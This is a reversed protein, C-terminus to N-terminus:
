VWYGRNGHRLLTVIACYPLEFGSVRLSLDLSLSMKCGHKLGVLPKNPPIDVDIDIRIAIVVPRALM